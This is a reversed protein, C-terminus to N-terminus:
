AIPIGRRLPALYEQPDPRYTRARLIPVKRVKNCLPCPKVRWFYRSLSRVVDTEVEGAGYCQPCQVLPVLLFVLLAITIFAGSGLLWVAVRFARREDDAM